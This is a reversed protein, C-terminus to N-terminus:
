RKDNNDKKHLPIDNIINLFLDSTKGLQWSGKENKYEIYKKSDVNKILLNSNSDYCNGDNYVLEFHKSYIKLYNEKIM